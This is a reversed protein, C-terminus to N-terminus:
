AAEEILAALAPRLRALEAELHTFAAHAASLDGQRGMRELVFAAESASLAGFNGVSGKLTHASHQLAKPDHSALAEQVEALMQPCEQLFLTALEGLLQRDGDVRELAEDLNFTPALHESIDHHM